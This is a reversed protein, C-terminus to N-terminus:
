RIRFTTRGKRLLSSREGEAMLAGLEQADMKTYINAHIENTIITDGGAGSSSAGAPVIQEGRHVIAPMTEPVYHTGRQFGMLMKQRRFTTIARTETPTRAIAQAGAGSPAKYGPLKRGLAYGYMREFDAIIEDTMISYLSAIFNTHTETLEEYLIQQETLIGYSATLLDEKEFITDRLNDIDAQRTDKLNFLQVRLAELEENLITKSDSAASEEADIRIGLQEIRIKTNEIQYRKLVRQEGRTLGRRRMMGRLQIKMMELNNKQMAISLEDYAEKQKKINEIHAKMEESLASLDYVQGKLGVRLAKIKDELDMVDEKYKLEIGLTGDYAYGVKGIEEQLNSQEIRLQGMTYQIAGARDMFSDLAGTVDDWARQSEFLDLNLIKLEKDYGEVAAYIDSIAAGAAMMNQVTIHAVASVGQIQREIDIREVIQEMDVLSSVINGVSAEDGMLSEFLSKKQGSEVMTTFANIASQKILDMNSVIEQTVTEVGGAFGGIVNFLLTGPSWGTEFTKGLGEGMGGLGGILAQKTAEINIQIGTLSKGVSREIAEFNQALVDAMFTTTNMMKGMAEETRGFSETLLDMDETLGMVGAEGAMAAFVRFSRMNPILESIIHSGYKESADHLQQIMGTLGMTRIALPGITMDYKKAAKIVGETPSILGQIGLALGRSVMDLHLGMRTATSFVGAIEKFEIGANAAIPTVYGLASGLDEYKLKGRVVTQFFLDSLTAAQSVSMGYANLVSTFIDVSQAVTSLGAVSARTATNLLRLADEAEFAASLIQYMGHAMDTAARGFQISLVEMGASIGPLKSMSVTTLITSVEAVAREYERFKTVSEKIFELLKQQAGMVANMILNYGVFRLALGRMSSSLRTAANTNRMTIRESQLMYKDKTGIARTLRQTTRTLKGLKKDFTDHYRTLTQVNSKYNYNINKTIDNAM